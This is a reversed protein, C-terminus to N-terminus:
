VITWAAALAGYEAEKPQDAYGIIVVDRDELDMSSAIQRFADPYDSAVDTSITPLILRNSKFILTAAGKAGARVAADRQELGKEIKDSRGKVLVAINYAAFALENKELKAKRAIANEIEEWVKEGKETLSCGGRSTLVLEADTLRSIMTRTAGEGLCLEESLRGRGILGAVAVTELLKLIDFVTFSPAPGPAKEIVLSDLLRKAAM